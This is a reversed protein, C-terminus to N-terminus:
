LFDSVARDQVYDSLASYVAAYAELPASDPVTALLEGGLSYIGQGHQILHSVRAGMAAERAPGVPLTHGFAILAARWAQVLDHTAPTKHRAPNFRAMRVAARPQPTPLLTPDFDLQVRQAHAHCLLDAMMELSGTSHAVSFFRELKKPSM